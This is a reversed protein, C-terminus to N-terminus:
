SFIGGLHEILKAGHRLPGRAAVYTDPRL